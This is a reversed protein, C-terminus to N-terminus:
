KKTDISFFTLYIRNKILNKVLFYFFAMIECFTSRVRAEEFAKMMKKYDAEIKTLRNFASHTIRALTSNVVELRQMALTRAAETTNSSSSFPWRDGVQQKIFAGNLAFNVLQRVMRNSRDVLCAGETMLNSQYNSKASQDVTRVWRELSDATTHFGEILVNVETVAKLNDQRSFILLNIWNQDFKYIQVCSLYTVEVRILMQADCKMSIFTFIYINVKVNLKFENFQTVAADILENGDLIQMQLAIDEIVDVQKERDPIETSLIKLDFLILM